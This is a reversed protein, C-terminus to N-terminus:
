WPAELHEALGDLCGIWGLEHQDRATPNAIREHTVIVETDVGRAQFKVTVREVPAAEGGVQWTYVLKGPRDIVEFAGAIWVINGDPLRNAIRYRGGVTLDVEALTCTVGQPGWWLKLREPETWAQFLRDPTSRIVKRVVLVLSGAPPADQTM